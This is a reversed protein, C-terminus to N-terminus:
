GVFEVDVVDNGVQFLGLSPAFFPIAVALVGPPLAGNTDQFTVLNVGDFAGDTLPSTGEDAFTIAIGPIESWARFADDVAGKVLLQELEGTLGPVGGPNVVYPIPTNPKWRIPIGQSTVINGGGYGNGSLLLFVLMVGSVYRLRKLFASNKM